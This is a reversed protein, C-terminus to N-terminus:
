KETCRVDGSATSKSHAEKVRKFARKLFDNELTMRGLRRELEAVKRRAVETSDTTRKPSVIRDIRHPPRGTGREIGAVGERRYSDCWRYLVNRGIDLERSLVGVSKGKLVREVISLRFQPTFVRNAAMRVERESCNTGIKLTEFNPHVDFTRNLTRVM